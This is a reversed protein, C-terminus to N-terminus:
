QFIYFTLIQDAHKLMQLKIVQRYIRAAESLKDDQHLRVAASMVEDLNSYTVAVSSASHNKLYAKQKRLKEKRANQKAQKQDRKAM